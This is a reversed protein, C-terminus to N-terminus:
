ANFNKLFQEIADFDPRGNSYYFTVRKSKAPQFLWSCDANVGWDEPIEINGIGESVLTVAGYNGVGVPVIDEGIAAINITDGENPMWRRRDDQPVTSSLLTASLFFRAVDNSDMAKVVHMDSRIGKGLGTVFAHFVYGDWTRWTVLSGIKTKCAASNLNARLGRWWRANLANYREIDGKLNKCGKRNHGETGCYSCLRPATAVRVNRAQIDLARNDQYSREEVPKAAATVATAAAVPCTRRTHGRDFCYRCTPSRRYSM